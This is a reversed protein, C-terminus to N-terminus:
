SCVKTHINRMFNSKTQIKQQWFIPYCLHTIQFDFVNIAVSSHEFVLTMKMSQMKLLNKKQLVADKSSVKDDDINSKATPFINERMRSLSDITEQIDELQIIDPFCLREAM